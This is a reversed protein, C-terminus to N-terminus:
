ITETQPNPVVESTKPVKLRQFVFVTTLLMVFLVLLGAWQHVDKLFYGVVVVIAHVGCILKASFGHSWGNNTLLHHIHNKDPSFPSRGQWIRLSFVRITDFVPLFVISMAFIPAHPMVPFPVDTNLQVLKICLVSIVFGL